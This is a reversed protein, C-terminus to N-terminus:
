NKLYMKIIIIEKKYDSFLKTFDNKFKDYLLKLQKQYEKTYIKYEPEVNALIDIGFFRVNGLSEYFTKFHKFDKGKYIPYTEPECTSEFLINVKSYRKSLESILKEKIKWCEHTGHTVDGLGIITPKTVLVDDVFKKFNSIKKVM